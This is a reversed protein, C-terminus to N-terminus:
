CCKKLTFHEAGQRASHRDGRGSCECKAVPARSGCLAASSSLCRRCSGRCDPGQGSPAWEAAKEQTRLPGKKDGARPGRAGSPTNRQSGALEGPLARGSPESAWGSDRSRRTHRHSRVGEEQAAPKTPAHAATEKIGM